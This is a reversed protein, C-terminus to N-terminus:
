KNNAEKESPSPNLVFRVGSVTVSDKDCPLGLSNARSLIEDLNKVDIIMGALGPGRGDGATVLHVDGMDLGLLLGGDESEPMVGTADAWRRATAQLDESQVIAASVRQVLTSDRMSQWDPGGWHWSGALKMEEVSLLSGLERPHIHISIAEELDVDLVTQLQKNELRQRDAAIDGTELIVMYGGDGGRKELLRGATTGEQTPSVVEIFTGGFTFVANELGFYEVATDNYCVEIDFLTSLEAVTKKLDHTVLAIQRLKLSM